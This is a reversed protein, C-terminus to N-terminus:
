LQEMTQFLQIFDHVYRERTNPEPTNFFGYVCAVLGVTGMFAFFADNM